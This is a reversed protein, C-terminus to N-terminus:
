ASVSVGSTRSASSTGTAFGFAQIRRLGNPQVAIWPQDWGALRLRREGFVAADLVSVRGTGPDYVDLLRDRDGPLVLVVHRPLVSNGIYLLAPEGEDVVEVLRAHAARLGAATRGRLVSIDYETGQKSAGFELEKKAGWPPTGLARPWPLNLRHGAAILGNTRSMVVREYAAFREQETAGPPADARPGEGTAVWHAFEPNVLMRAVTLCASGCTVPSQQLPGQDGSRLRFGTSM